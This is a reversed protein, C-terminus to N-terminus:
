NGNIQSQCQAIRNFLVQYDDNHDIEDAMKRFKESPNESSTDGSPKNPTDGSPKNPTESPSIKNLRPSAAKLMSTGKSTDSRKNKPSAIPSSRKPSSRKQRDPDIKAAQYKNVTKNWGLFITDQLDFHKLIDDYDTWLVMSEYISLKDIYQLFAKKDKLYMGRMYKYIAYPGIDSETPIANNLAKGFEKLNSESPDKTVVLKCDSIIKFSKVVQGILFM